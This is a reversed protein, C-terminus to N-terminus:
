KQLANLFYDPPRCPRNNAATFAHVTLGKVIAEGRCYITYEIRVRVGVPPLMVAEVEVSDGFRAPKIYNAALEIVPLFLGKKELEDYPLAMKKMLEVRAAEFYVPYVSHHVIGMQDTEAYRVIIEHVIKNM